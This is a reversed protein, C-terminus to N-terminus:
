YSVFRTYARGHGNYSIFYGGQFTCTTPTGTQIGSSNSGYLITATSSDVGVTLEGAYVQWPCSSNNTCEVANTAVTTFANNNRDFGALVASGSTSSYSLNVLSNSNFFTFTENVTLNKLASNPYTVTIVGTLQYVVQATSAGTILNYALGANQNTLAASGNLTYAAGTVTGTVLFNNFQISLVAGTDKWSSGSTLTATVTGSRTVDNCNTTGDFTISVQKSAANTDILSVGCLTSLGMTKGSIAYVQCAAFVVDRVTTSIGSFIVPQDSVSAVDITTLSDKRISDQKLSDQTQQNQQNPNNNNDKKCSSLSFATGGIALIVIMLVALKLLFKDRHM